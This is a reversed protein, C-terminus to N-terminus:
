PRPETVPRPDTLAAVMPETTLERLLKRKIARTFDEYDTAVEVFAGPGGIVEAAYFSDVDAEENVVALGNVTIGRAVLADRALRAPPGASTKGDGSLDIVRRLAQFPLNDMVLGARGLAAGIATGGGEIYRPSNGLTEGFAAATEATVVQWGIDLHQRGPSSWELVAVAIRRNPGGAIAAQVAPDAFAAAIGQSQLFFEDRNVSSSSDLALVLAVDVTEARAATATAAVAALLAAVILRARPRAM